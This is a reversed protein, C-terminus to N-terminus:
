ARYKSWWDMGVIVDYDGIAMIILDGQLIERGVQIECSPTIRYAVVTRGLLTSVLLDYPLEKGDWHMLCACSESVYSHTSGPDILVSIPREHLSLTGEVVAAEEELEDRNMVYVKAKV